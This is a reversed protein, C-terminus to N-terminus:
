RPTDVAALVTRRLYDQVDTELRRFSPLGRLCSYDTISDTIRRICQSPRFAKRRRGRLESAQILLEHLASKPNAITEIRRPDPLQLRVGGNPNGSALRIAAEDLLFWAESMRVPVICVHPVSIGKQELTDIAQRVEGYRVEPDQNEADRHVFLLSCPYLDVAKRIRGCLGQPPSSLHRLNVWELNIAVGSAHQRMLWELIPLLAADSAGDTLLSCFLEPV